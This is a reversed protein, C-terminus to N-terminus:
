KVAEVYFTHEDRCDVEALKPLASYGKNHLRCSSFGIHNLLVREVLELTLLNTNNWGLTFDLPKGNALLPLGMRMPAGPKLVRLAERWAFVLDRWLLQQFVSMGVIGDVSNDEYPWPKSLDMQMDLKYKKGKWGTMLDSNIFGKHYRNGCGVHLLVLDEM